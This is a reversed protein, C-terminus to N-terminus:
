RGEFYFITEDPRAYGLKSRVVRELFHSDTLVLRLYEEKRELDIRTAELKATVENDRQKFTQYERYTQLFVTGLMTAVGVFVFVLFIVLLKGFKAM